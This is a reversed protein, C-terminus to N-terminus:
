CQTRPLSPPHNKRIIIGSQSGIKCAPVQQLKMQASITLYLLTHCYNSVHYIFLVQNFCQTDRCMDQVSVCRDDTDCPIYNRDYNRGDSYYHCVGNCPQTFPLPTGGPCSATYLGDSTCNTHQPICCYEASGHELTKDSGCKCYDACHQGCKIQYPYCGDYCLLGPISALLLTALLMQFLWQLWHEYQWWGSITLSPLM